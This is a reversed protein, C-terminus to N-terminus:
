VEGPNQQLDFIQKNNDAELRLQGRGVGERRFDPVGLEHAFEHILTLVQFRETGNNLDGIGSARHSVDFYAGTSNIFINFGDVLRDVENKETEIFTQLTGATPALASTMLWNRCDDNLATELNTITNRVSRSGAPEPCILRCWIAETTLLM